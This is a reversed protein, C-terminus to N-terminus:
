LHDQMTPGQPCLHQVTRLLAHQTIRCPCCQLLHVCIVCSTLFGEVDKGRQVQQELDCPVVWSGESSALLMIHHLAHLQQEGLADVGGDAVRACMVVVAADDKRSDRCVEATSLTLLGDCGVCQQLSKQARRTALGLPRTIHQKEVHVRTKSSCHNIPLSPIRLYFNCSGFILHISENLKLWAGLSRIAM